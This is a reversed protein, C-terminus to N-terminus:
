KCYEDIHECIPDGRMPNKLNKHKLNPDFGERIGDDVEDCYLLGIKKDGTEKWFNGLPCFSIMSHRRDGIIERTVKFGAFMPFDYHKGFNEVTPKLGLSDLNERIGRGRAKGFERLGKRLIAEGKENGLSEMITKALYSLMMAVFEASRRAVTEVADLDTQTSM